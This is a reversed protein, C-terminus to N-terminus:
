LHCIGLVWHYFHDSFLMVIWDKVASNKVDPTNYWLYMRYVYGLHLCGFLGTMIQTLILSFNMM